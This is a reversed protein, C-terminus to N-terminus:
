HTLLLSNVYDQIMAEIHLVLITGQGTLKMMKKKIILGLGIHRVQIGVGM